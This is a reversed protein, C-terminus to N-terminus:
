VKFIVKTHRIHCLHISFIQFRLKKRQMVSIKTSSGYVLTDSIM